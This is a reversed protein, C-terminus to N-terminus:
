QASHPFYGPADMVKEDGVEWKRLMAQRSLSWRSRGIGVLRVCSARRWGGWHFDPGRTAVLTELDLQKRYVCKRMSRTEQRYGNACRMHVKWGLSRAVGLTEVELLVFM